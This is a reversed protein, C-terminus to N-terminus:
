FLVYIISNKNDSVLALRADTFEVEYHFSSAPISPHLLQGQQGITSALKINHGGKGTALSVQDPKLFVNVRGEEEFIEMSVVKAPSLARQILLQNNSTFNIVDINENRLERVFSM